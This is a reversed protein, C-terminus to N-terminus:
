FLVLRRRRDIPRSTLTRNLTSPAPWRTGTATLTSVRGPRNTSAVRVAFPRYLARRVVIGRVRGIGSESTANSRSPRATVTCRLWVIM